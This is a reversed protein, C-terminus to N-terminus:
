LPWLERPRRKKEETSRGGNCPLAPLARQPSRTDGLPHYRHRWTHCCRSRYRRRWGVALWRHRCARTAPILRCHPHTGQTPKLPTSSMWPRETPPLDVPSHRPHTPKLLLAPHEQNNQPHIGQTPPSWYSHQINLSARHTTPGHTFAKPPHAETPTSSTWPRETPPLDM